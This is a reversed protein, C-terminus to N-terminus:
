QCYKFLFFVGLRLVVNAYISSIVDDLVIGWGGPLNQAQKAPFPKWIDLIRNLIFGIVLTMWSFPILFMTIPIGVVEDLVIESADKKMLIQEALDAIWISLFVLVICLFAYAFHSLTATRMLFYLAVGGLAGVTGPAVPSYGLYFCSAIM